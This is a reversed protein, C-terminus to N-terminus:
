ELYNPYAYVFYTKAFVNNIKIKDPMIKMFAPSVLDKVYALSENYEKEIELLKKEEDKSLPKDLDMNELSLSSSKKDEKKTQIIDKVEYSFADGSYKKSILEKLKENSM